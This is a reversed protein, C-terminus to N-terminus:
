LLKKFIAAGLTGLGTEGIYPHVKHGFKDYLSVQCRAAGKSRHFQHLTGPESAPKRCAWGLV